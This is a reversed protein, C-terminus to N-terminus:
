YRRLDSDEGFTDVLLTGIVHNERRVNFFLWISCVFLAFTGLVALDSVGIHIGLLSITIVRSEAYQQIVRRFAEETVINKPFELKLPFRRYWSLYANWEAIFISISAITTALFALRSRTIAERSGHLRTALVLAKTDSTPALSAQAAM